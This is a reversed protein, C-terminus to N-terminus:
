AEVAKKQNDFVQATEAREARVADFCKRTGDLMPVKGTFRQWRMVAVDVYRPDLEMALCVRGDRGGSAIRLDDVSWVLDQVLASHIRESCM